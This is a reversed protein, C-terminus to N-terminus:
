RRLEWMAIAAAAAANLSEVRDTIPIILQADCAAVTEPALGRGESGIFLALKEPRGFATISKAGDSLATAATRWGSQRLLSAFATEAPFQAVPTSFAAGMSARLAKPSCPDACGPGLAAAYGLAAATRLVSGVNVPDQVGCLVALRDKDALWGSETGLQGMAPLAAAGLVGQPSKQGSIKACVSDAMCVAPVGALLAALRGGLRALAEETVWLERLLGFRKAEECLKLGDAVCLGAARRAAADACLATMQLVRENTRSTIREM